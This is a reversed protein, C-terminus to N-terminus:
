QTATLLYSNPGLLQLLQLNWIAAALSAANCCASHYLLEWALVCAKRDQCLLMGPISSLGAAPCTLLDKAQLHMLLFTSFVEHTALHQLSALTMIM